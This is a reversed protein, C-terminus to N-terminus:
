YWHKGPFDNLTPSLDNGPPLLLRLSTRASSCLSPTVACGDTDGGTCSMVAEWPTLVPPRRVFRSSSIGVAQEAGPVCSSDQIHGSLPFLSQTKSQADGARPTVERHSREMVSASSPWNQSNGGSHGSHPHHRSSHSGLCPFLAARRRAERQIEGRSTETYPQLTLIM